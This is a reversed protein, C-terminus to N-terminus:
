RRVALWSGAGPRETWQEVTRFAPTTPLPPMRLRQSGRSFPPWVAGYVTAAEEYLKDPSANSLTDALKHRVSLYDIM